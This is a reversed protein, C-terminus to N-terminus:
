SGTLENREDVLDSLAAQRRPDLTSHM